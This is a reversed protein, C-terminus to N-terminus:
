IYMSDNSVIFKQINSSIHNVKEMLSYNQILECVFMIEKTMNLIKLCCKIFDGIFIDKESKLRHFFVKTDDIDHISELWLVVYEMMDFQLSYNNTGSLQYKTEYDIYMNIM